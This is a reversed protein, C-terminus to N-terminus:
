LKPQKVIQVRLYFRLYCFLLIGLELLQHGLLERLDLRQSVGDLVLEVVEEGELLGRLCHLDRLSLLSCVIVHQHPLDHLHAHLDVLQLLLERLLRSGFLVERLNVTEPLAKSLLDLTQVLQPLRLLLKRYFQLSLLVPATSHRDALLYHM